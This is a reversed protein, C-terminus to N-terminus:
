NYSIYKFSSIKEMIFNMGSETLQYLEGTNVLIIANHLNFRTPNAFTIVNGNITFLVDFILNKLTNTEYELWIKTIKRGIPSVFNGLASVFVLSKNFNIGSTNTYELYPGFQNVGTDTFRYFYKKTPDTIEPNYILVGSGYTQVLDMTTEEWQSTTNNYTYTKNSAIDILLNNNIGGIFEANKYTAYPQSLTMYGYKKKGKFREYDVNSNLDLVFQPESPLINSNTESHWFYLIDKVRKIKLKVTRNAWGSPSPSTTIANEWIKTYSSSRIYNFFVGIGGAPQPSFGGMSVVFSIYYNKSNERSFAAIIGVTDDDADKSTVTTTFEYSDYELNSVFGNTPEVNLPMQITGTASDYTWAAANGTSTSKSVYFNEGDFRGWNNFIDLPTQPKRNLLELQIQSSDNYILAEIIPSSLRTDFEPMQDINMFYNYIRKYIFKNEFHGTPLSPNCPITNLNRFPSTTKENKFEHNNIFNLLKSTRLLNFTPVEFKWTLSKLYNIPTLMQVYLIDNGNLKLNNTYGTYFLKTTKNSAKSFNFTGIPITNFKLLGTADEGFDIKINAPQKRLFTSKTGMPINNNSSDLFYIAEPVNKGYTYAATQISGDSMKLLFKVPIYGDNSITLNMSGTHLPYETIVVKSESGGAYINDSDQLNAWLIHNGYNARLFGVNVPSRDYNGSFYSGFNGVVYNATRYFGFNDTNIAENVSTLVRDGHDTIFFIGNGNERYSILADIATDTILKANTWVTSFFLICCYQDLEPYQCNIANGYDSTTKYTPIYGKIACVKDISKKFGGRGSGADKISYYSEPEQDGLVLIKKNGSGVKTNNSIFDIADYLYKYSPSLHAYTTWTDSCNDNYWKPFGGDLLINGLGDEVTAIFPNAPSLNDYAIYKAIVPPIGNQTVAYELVDSTKTVNINITSGSYIGSEPTLNMGM